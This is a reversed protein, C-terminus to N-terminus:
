KGAMSETRNCSGSPEHNAESFACKCSLASLIVTMLSHEICADVFYDTDRLSALTKCSVFSLVGALLARAISVLLPLLSADEDDGAYLRWFANFGSELADVGLDNVGRRIMQTAPRAWCLPTLARGCILIGAGPHM